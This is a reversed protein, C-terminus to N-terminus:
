IGLERLRDPQIQGPMTEGPPIEETLQTAEERQGRLLVVGAAVAVAGLFGMTIRKLM